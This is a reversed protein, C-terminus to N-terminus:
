SIGSLPLVAASSFSSIRSLVRFLAARAACPFASLTWIRLPTCASHGLATGRPHAGLTQLTTESPPLCNAQLPEQTSTLAQRPLLPHPFESAECSASLPLAFYFPLLLCHLPGRMLPHVSVKGKGQLARGEDKHCKPANQQSGLCM